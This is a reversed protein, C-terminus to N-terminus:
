ASELSPPLEDDQWTDLLTRHLPYQPTWGTEARFREMSALLIPNDVPRLKSPDQTISFDIATVQRVFQLVESISHTQGSGLNVVPGDPYDKFSHEGVHLLGAAADRVDIFDRKSELNGLKLNTHGKKLQAIIEPLIHPNTEGPGIVNFLRVITTELGRRQQFLRTYNEGHLKTWGYVDVPGTASTAERLAQASPAYVSASSVFIFKAKLPQADLLNVTSLLNTSLALEPKQECLPIFHIASLHFIIDPLVEALLSRVAAANRLDVLHFHIKHLDMKKLRYEGCHLNDAVHVDYKEQALHVLERGVFGCGGTILVRTM